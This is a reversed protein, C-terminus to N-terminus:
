RKSRPLTESQARRIDRELETAAVTAASKRQKGLARLSYRKDISRTNTESGRAEGSAGGVDRLHRAYSLLATASAGASNQQSNRLRRERNNEAAVIYANYDWNYGNKISVRMCKAAGLTELHATMDRPYTNLLQAFVDADDHEAAIIFALMQLNHPMSSVWLHPRVLLEIGLAMYSETISCNVTYQQEIADSLLALKASDDVTASDLCLAFWVQFKQTITMEQQMM